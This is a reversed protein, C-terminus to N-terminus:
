PGRGGGRHLTVREAKAHGNPQVEGVLGSVQGNVYCKPTFLTKYFPRYIPSVYLLYLPGHLSFKEQIRFSM